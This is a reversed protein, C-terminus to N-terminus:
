KPQISLELILFKDVLIDLSNVSRMTKYDVFFTVSTAGKDNANANAGRKIKKKIM